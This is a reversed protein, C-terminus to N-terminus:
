GGPGQLWVCSHFKYDPEQRSQPEPKPNCLPQELLHKPDSRPLYSLSLSKGALFGHGLLPQIPGAQGKLLLFLSFQTERHGHQCTLSPPHEPGLLM